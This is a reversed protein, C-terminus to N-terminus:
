ELDTHRARLSEESKDQREMLESVITDLFIMSSLEFLTGLPTIPEHLGTLQRSLYDRRDDEQARGKIRVVVDALKGIPSNQYSTIAAVRVSKEKATKVISYVSQTKGSGSIVLLLDGERVAPTTTEGVVYVGFGLHMLRMAFARAVLGSRGAGQVFIRDAKVIATIFREIEKRDIERIKEAIKRLLMEAKIHMMSGSVAM